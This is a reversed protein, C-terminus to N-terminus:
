PSSDNGETNGGSLRAGCSMCFVYSSPSKAGCSPCTVEIENASALQPVSPADPEILSQWSATETPAEVPNEVPTQNLAATASLPAAEFNPVEFTLPTTDTAANTVSSTPQIPPQLAPQIPTLPPAPQVPAPTPTLNQFSTATNVPAAYATAPAVSPATAHTTWELDLADKRVRLDLYFLVMALLWAPTFLMFVLAYGVVMVVLIVWFSPTLDGEFAGVVTDLGIILAAAAYIIVILALAALSLISMLSIGRGWHGSMLEWSRPLIKKDPNNEEMCTVLPAIHAWTLLAVSVLSIVVTAVIIYITILIGQSVSDLNSFAPAAALGIGFFVGSVLCIVVTAILMTLLYWGLMGGFRAQAFQWCQGFTVNQGRVAASVCCAAVGLFIPTLIVMGCSGCTTSALAGVINVVASWGMLVWFYQKYVKLSTDLLELVSRARLPLPTFAPAPERM